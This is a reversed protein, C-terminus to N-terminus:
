GALFKQITKLSDLQSSKRVIDSEWIRLCKWGSDALEADVRKDREKNSLLKAHWYERGNMREIHRGHWFDGDIFVAKKKRPLAIDPSGAAKKYHRQFYVGEKRLYRFAIKEANSNKSRIKAMIESRKSPSFIDPM